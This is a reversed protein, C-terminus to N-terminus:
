PFLTIEYNSTSNVNPELVFLPIYHSMKMCSHLTNKANVEQLNSTCCNPFPTYSCSWFLM